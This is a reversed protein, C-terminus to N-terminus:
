DPAKYNTLFDKISNYRKSVIEGNGKILIYTPYEVIGMHTTLLEDVNGTQKYNIWPYRHTSIYSYWQQYPNDISIGILEINKSELDALHTSIIKHDRVCPVCKVFWFDLLYLKENKLALKEETGKENLFRYNAVDIKKIEFLKTLNHYPQSSGNKVEDNQKELKSLFSNLRKKNKANFSIYNDSVLNSFCNNFHKEFKSLLMKNFKITDQTTRCKDFSDLSKVFDFYEYYIPANEVKDIYLKNNKFHATIKPNGDNLWVEEVYNKKNRNVIILYNHPEGRSFEFSLRPKYPEKIWNRQESDCIFVSDTKADTDLTLSIRTTNQLTKFPRKTAEKKCSVMSYILLFLITNKM